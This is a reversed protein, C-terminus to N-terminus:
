RGLPPRWNRPLPYNPRAPFRASAARRFAAQSDVDNFKATEILTYMAARLGGEDSGAFTWNHRGVAVCRLTREAANNSMCLRGDDLFRTLAVWRKLSYDIAEATDIKSSLKRRQERLWAELEAILPQSREQRVAVREPPPLGNIKREIAFLADIRKMAEIAIPGKRLRALEFFKRQAHAWCATEVILGPKRTAEYLRNFGAYADAQM